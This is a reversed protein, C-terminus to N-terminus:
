WTFSYTYKIISLFNENIEEGSISERLDIRSKNTCLEIQNIDFM